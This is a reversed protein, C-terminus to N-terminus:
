RPRAAKWVTIAEQHVDRGVCRRANRGKILHWTFRGPTCDWVMVHEISDRTGAVRKARTVPNGSMVWSAPMPEPDLKAEAATALVISTMM